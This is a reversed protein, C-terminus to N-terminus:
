MVLWRIEGTLLNKWKQVYCVTASCVSRRCHEILSWTRSEAMLKPDCYKTKM